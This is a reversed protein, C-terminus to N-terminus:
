RSTSLLTRYLAQLQAAVEAWTQPRSPRPRSPAHEYFARLCAATRHAASTVPCYAASAGFVCRGWPLDSLLLPCGCAAAELASLSLSEMSSLLVFGRAARYVVALRARDPIAGEYRLWRPHARALELFRRAYPDDEAYPKGIIWVPAEARVAAEALEVVRKRETITATCVLWPGREREQSEFFVTEVGNPVVHVREKPAGFMEVMLQAEWPTLAVLADALRYSDWAMRGVFGPLIRRALTMLLQQGRRARPGRSGLGTLLEAMVVKIGKAHAFRIYSDPARGFYHIVDGRQAADWWRLPEVEVGLAALAAQTQEIQIEFGGHALLFPQPHDFLIKM